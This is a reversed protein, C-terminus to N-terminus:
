GQCEDKKCYEFSFFILNSPLIFDRMLHGAYALKGTITKM